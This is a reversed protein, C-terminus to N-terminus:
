ALGSGMIYNDVFNRVARLLGDDGQFHVTKTMPLQEKVYATMSVREDTGVEICYRLRPLLAPLGLVGTLLGIEFTVGVTRGLRTFITVFLDPNFSTVLDLFKGTLTEASWKPLEEMVIVSIGIGELARKLTMRRAKEAPPDGPGLLFVRINKRAGNIRAERKAGEKLIYARIDEFSGLRSERELRM